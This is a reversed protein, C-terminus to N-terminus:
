ITQKVINPLKIKTQLHFPYTPFIRTVPLVKRISLKHRQKEKQNSYLLQCESGFNPIQNSTNYFLVLRLNNYEM